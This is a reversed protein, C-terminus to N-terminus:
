TTQHLLTLKQLLDQLFEDLPMDHEQMYLIAKYCSRCHELSENIRQEMECLNGVIYHSLVVNRAMEDDHTCLRRLDKYCQLQQLYHEIAPAYLEEKEYLTALKCYIEALDKLFGTNDANNDCLEVRLDLCKKYYEKAKDIKNQKHLVDGFSSYCRASDDKYYANKPAIDMLDGCVELAQSFYKEAVSFADRASHLDGLNKCLVLTDRKFEVNDPYKKHLQQAIDLNEMYLKQAQEWENQRQYVVALKSHNVCVDRLCDDNDPHSEQLSRRIKLAEDYFHKAEQLQNNQLYFDGLRNYNVSVDRTCKTDDPYQLQLNQSMYLSNLYYQQAEEMRGDKNYLDALKYMVVGLDRAYQPQPDNEWLEERIDLSNHYYRRGRKADGMLLFIGALREFNVSLDRSIIDMDPHQQYLYQGVNLAALFCDMAQQLDGSHQHLDGQKEHSMALNRMREVCEPRKECLEQLLSHTKLLVNWRAKTNAYSALCKDVKTQLRECLIQSEIESLEQQLLSSTVQESGAIVEALIGSAKELEQEKKIYIFYALAKGYKQQQLDSSFQELTM